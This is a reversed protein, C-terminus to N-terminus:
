RISSAVQTPVAGLLFPHLNAVPSCCAHVYDGPKRQQALGGRLSAMPRGHGVFVRVYGEPEALIMARQLPALVAEAHRRAQQVLGQVVQIEIVSGTREAADAAQLLRQLLRAANASLRADECV